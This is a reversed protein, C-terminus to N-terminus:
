KKAVTELEAILDLIVPMPRCDRLLAVAAAALAPESFLAPVQAANYGQGRLTEACIDLIEDRM